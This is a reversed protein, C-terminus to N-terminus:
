RYSVQWRSHIYYPYIIAITSLHYLFLPVLVWFVSVICVHVNYELYITTYTISLVVISTALKRIYTLTTTHISYRRRWQTVFCM